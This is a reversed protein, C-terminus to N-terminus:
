FQREAQGQGLNQDSVVIPRVRSIENGENDYTVVDPMFEILRSHLAYDPVQRGDSWHWAGGIIVHNPYDLLLQDLEAKVKQRLNGRFDFDVTWLTWTRGAITDTRYLAVRNARDQMYSFLKHQRDTVPGAYAGQSEQDWNLREVILAQADDRLGLWVNITM